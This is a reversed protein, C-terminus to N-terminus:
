FNKSSLNFSLEAEQGSSMAQNFIRIDNDHKAQMEANESELAELRTMLVAYSDRSDRIDRGQPELQYLYDDEDALHAYFSSGKDWGKERAYQSIKEQRSEKLDERPMLTGDKLIVRKSGPSEPVLWGKALFDQYHTCQYMMHEPSKCMYCLYESASMPKGAQPNGRPASIPM